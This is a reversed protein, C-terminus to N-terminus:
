GFGSYIHKYHVNKVTNTAKVQRNEKGVLKVSTFLSTRSSTTLRKPKQSTTHQFSGM